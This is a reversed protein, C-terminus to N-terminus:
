TLRSTCQVHVSVLLIFLGGVIPAFGYFMDKYYISCCNDESKYSYGDSILSSGFIINKCLKPIFYCNNLELIFRSPLSLSMVRVAQAAIGDGNNVRMMVENRSLKRIKQLGQMM